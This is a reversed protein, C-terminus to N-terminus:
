ESIKLLYLAKQFAKKKLEIAEIREYTEKDESLGEM